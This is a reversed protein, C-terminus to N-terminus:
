ALDLQTIRRPPADQFVPIILGRCAPAVGRVPGRPQGFIVSTVHTGHASMPGGGVADPVLSDARTLKAGEFRPHSDDVPGDLITICIEPDGLTEAWLSRLGEIADLATETRM